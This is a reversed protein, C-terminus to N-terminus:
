SEGHIDMSVQYQQAVSLALDRAVLIASQSLLDGIKCSLTVRHGFNPPMCDDLLGCVAMAQRIIVERKSSGMISGPDYDWRNQSPDFEFEVEQEEALMDFISQGEDHFGSGIKIQIGM